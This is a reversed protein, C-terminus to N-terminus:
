EAGPGRRVVAVQLDPPAVESRLRKRRGVSLGHLERDLQALATSSAVVQGGRASEGVAAVIAVDVGLYEGGLRRPRGFHVGTRLRPHHGAVEVAQIADQIDLAAAVGSEGTLFTAIVGDGLRKVIRGRNAAVAHDIVAGVQQLLLVAAEDGVELAWSSFDVVDAYLLGLPEDGRGRGARESLSQWLQLGTLGLESVLSDEEPRLVTVGRALYAVASEEATSLADGFKEDGPLRHRMGRVAALLAQQRDVRRAASRAKEVWAKAADLGAGTEGEPAAALGENPGDDASPEPL